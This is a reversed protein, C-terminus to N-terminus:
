ATILMPPCLVYCFMTSREKLRQEGRVSELVSQITQPKIKRLDGSIKINMLALINRFAIMKEETPSPHVRYIFPLGEGSFHESVAVNALLMFEEIISEARGPM